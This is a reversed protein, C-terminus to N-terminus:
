ARIAPLAQVAGAKALAAAANMRDVWYRSELAGWAPELHPSIDVVGASRLARDRLRKPYPPRLHELVLERAQPHGAEALEDVATAAVDVDQDAAARVLTKDVEPLNYRVLEGLESVAEFREHPDSSQIKRFLQELTQRSPTQDHSNGISTM